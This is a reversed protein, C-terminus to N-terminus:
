AETTAKKKKKFVMIYNEPLPEVEHESLLEFGAELVESRFTAQDGRIHELAWKPPHFGPIMKSEDRHFDVLVVTGGDKLARSM